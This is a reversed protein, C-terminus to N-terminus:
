GKDTVSPLGKGQSLAIGAAATEPTGRTDHPCHPICTCLWYPIMSCVLYSSLRGAPLRPLLHPQWGPAHTLLLTTSSVMLGYMNSPNSLYSPEPAGSAPGPAQRNFASASNNPSSGLSQAGQLCAVEDCTVARVGAEVELSPSVLTVDHLFLRCGPCECCPQGPTSCGCCDQAALALKLCPPAICASVQAPIGAAPPQEKPPLYYARHRSRGVVRLVANRLRVPVIDLGGQLACPSLMLRPAPPSRHTSASCAARKGAIARSCVGQKLPLAHAVRSSAHLARLRLLVAMAMCHPSVYGACRCFSESVVDAPTGSLLGPVPLM